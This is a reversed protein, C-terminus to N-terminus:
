GGTCDPVGLQAELRAAVRRLRDPAHELRQIRRAAAAYQAFTRPAAIVDYIGLYSTAYSEAIRRELALWLAVPKREGVPAPVTALRALRREASARIDAAVGLAGDRTGMAHSGEFLLAHACIQTVAQAYPTPTAAEAPTASGAILASVLVVPLILQLRTSPMGGLM